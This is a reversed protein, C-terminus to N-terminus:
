AGFTLQDDVQTVGPASWAASEAISREWWTKVRGRLTVKTGTVEVSIHSAEVEASRRLASEIKHHLAVPDAAQEKSPRIEIQNVIDTVGGLRRIDREVAERQFQHTVAGTLTVVGNEVKVRIQEDPVELDWNLIKLARDAIEQDAHQHAWPPRVVINQAVGQVGKVRRAAREAAVKEALSSVVGSLSVVGNQAAVGIHAADVNPTWALEDMVMAQLTMDDPM